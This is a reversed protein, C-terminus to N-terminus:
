ENVVLVSGVHASYWTESDSPHSSLERYGRQAFVSMIEWRDSELVQCLTRNTGLVPGGCSHVGQSSLERYRHKAGHGRKGGGPGEPGPASGQVGCRM